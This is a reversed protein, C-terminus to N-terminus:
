DAVCAVLRGPNVVETFFTEAGCHSCKLELPARFADPTYGTWTTTRECVRCRFRAEDGDLAATTNSVTDM